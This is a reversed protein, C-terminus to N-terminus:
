WAPASFLDLEPAGPNLQDFSETFADLIQDRGVLVYPDAGFTPVFPNRRTEQPVM